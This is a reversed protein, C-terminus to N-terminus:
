YRSLQGCSAPRLTHNRTAIKRADFQGEGFPAGSVTFGVLDGSSDQAVTTASTVGSFEIQKPEPLDILRTYSNGERRGSRYGFAPICSIKSRLKGTKRSFRELFALEPYGKGARGSNHPVREISASWWGASRWSEVVPEQAVRHGSTDKELSLHTRAESAKRERRGQYIHTYRNEFNPSQYYALALSRVRNCSREILAPLRM